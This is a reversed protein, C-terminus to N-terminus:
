RLFLDENVVHIVGNFVRIDQEALPLPPKASGFRRVKLTGGGSVFELNIYVPPSDWPGPSLEFGSLGPIDTMDNSFYAADYSVTIYNVKILSDMPTTPIVYDNGEVYPYQLPARLIYDRISEVTSFGAKRFADNTPAFLTINYYGSRLTTMNIVQDHYFTEVYLSDSIRLAELYFSFRPDAQLYDYAYKVPRELLNDIPYIVGDVAELSQFGTAAKKGDVTLDGNHLGFYLTYRYQREYDTLYTSLFTPVSINGSLETMSEPKYLGELTYFALLTDLTEANSSNIKQLDWGAANFAADTPALLTYFRTGTAFLISDMHSGKWAARFLTLGSSDLVQALSKAPGDYPVPEGVPDVQAEEKRCSLFLLVLLLASISRIRNFRLQM